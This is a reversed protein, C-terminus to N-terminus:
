DRKTRRQTPSTKALRSAIQTKVLKRVLATPLPSEAAFRITGKSTDYVRVDAKHIQIPAAGTYFSCHKAAAGMSVIMRGELKFTPLNYCICEEAGPMAAKIDQRLKILAKRKDPSVGALYEAVSGVRPKM